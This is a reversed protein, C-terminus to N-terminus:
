EAGLRGHDITIKQRVLAMGVRRGARVRSGGLLAFGCGKLAKACADRRSV